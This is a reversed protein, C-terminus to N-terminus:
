YLCWDLLHGRVWRQPTTASSLGSAQRAAPLRYRLRTGCCPYLIWDTQVLNLVLRPAVVCQRNQVCKPFDPSGALKEYRKGLGSCLGDLGRRSEQM